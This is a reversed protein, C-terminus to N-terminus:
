STQKVILFPRDYQSVLDKASFTYTWTWEGNGSVDGTSQTEEFIVKGGADM